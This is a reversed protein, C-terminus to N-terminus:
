DEALWKLMLLDSLNHADLREMMHARHMEVTRVALDLEAAIAKNM